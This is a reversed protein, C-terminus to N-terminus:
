ADDDGDDMDTESFGDDSLDEEAFGAWHPVKQANALGILLVALRDMRGESVWGQLVGEVFAAKKKSTKKSDVLVRPEDVSYSQDQYHFHSPFMDLGLKYSAAMARAVEPLYDRRRNWILRRDRYFRDRASADLTDKFLKSKEVTVATHQKQRAYM